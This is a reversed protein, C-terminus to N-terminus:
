RVAAFRHSTIIPGQPPMIEDLEDCDPIVTMFWSCLTAELESACPSNSLLRQARASPV